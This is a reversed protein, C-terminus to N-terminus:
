HGITVVRTSTNNATNADTTSSIVSATNSVAGRTGKVLERMIFSKGTGVPMNGLNCTLSLGSKTCGGTDSQYIAQMTTPLNKLEERLWDLQEEISVNLGLTVAPGTRYLCDM